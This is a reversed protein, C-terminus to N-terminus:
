TMLQDMLARAGGLQSFPYIEVKISGGTNKEVYTKFFEASKGMPTHPPAIHAYRIVKQRAASEPPYSLLGCTIFFATIALAFVKRNCM